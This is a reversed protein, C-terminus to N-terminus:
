TANRGQALQQLDYFELMHLENLRAEMEERPAGLGAQAIRDELLSFDVGISKWYPSGIDITRYECPVDTLASAFWPWTRVWNSGNKQRVRDVYQPASDSSTGLIREGILEDIAKRYEHARSLVSQAFRAVDTDRYGLTDGIIQSGKLWQKDQAHNWTLSRPIGIHADWFDTAGLASKASTFFDSEVDVNNPDGWVFVAHEIENKGIFKAALVDKFFQEAHPVHISKLYTPVVFSKSGPTDMGEKKYLATLKDIASQKNPGEYKSGRYGGHLAAWAAGMMGHDLKGGRTTPLHTTGDDEKVLFGGQSDSGETMAKQGPMADDPDEGAEAEKLESEIFALLGRITTCVTSLDAPEDDEAEILDSLTVIAYAATRIDDPPNDGQEMDGMLKAALAKGAKADEGMAGCDAGAAVM